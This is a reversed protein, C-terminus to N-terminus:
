DGDNLYTDRTDSDEDGVFEIDPFYTITGKGLSNTKANLFCTAVEDTQNSAYDAVMAILEAGIEQLNGEVMLCYQNGMGRGCYSRCHYGADQLIEQIVHRDM